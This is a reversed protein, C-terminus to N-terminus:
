DKDKSYGRVGPGGTHAQTGFNEALVAPKDNSQHAHVSNGGNTTTDIGPGTSTNNVAVGAGPGHALGFLGGGRDSEGTIAFGNSLFDDDASEQNWVRFASYPFEQRGLLETVEGGRSCFRDGDARCWGYNRDGISLADGVYGAQAPAAGALVGAMTLAVIGARRTFM